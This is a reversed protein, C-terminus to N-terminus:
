RFFIFIRISWNRGIYKSRLEGNGCGPPKRAEDGLREAVPRLSSFLRQSTSDTADVTVSLHDVHRLVEHFGFHNTALFRLFCM